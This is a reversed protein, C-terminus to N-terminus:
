SKNILTSSPSLNRGEEHTKDQKTLRLERGFQLTRREEHGSIDGLKQKLPTTAVLRREFL